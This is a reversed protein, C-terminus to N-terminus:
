RRKVCVTVASAEERPVASVSGDHGEVVYSTTAKRDGRTSSWVPAEPLLGARALSLLEKRSPVRWGRTFYFPRGRCTTMADHWPRQGMIPEAVVLGRHVAVQRREIAIDLQTKDDGASAPEIAPPATVIVPLPIPTPASVVVPPAETPVIPLAGVAPIEAEIAEMPALEPAPPPGDATGLLVGASAIALGVLVLAARRRREAGVVAPAGLLTPDILTVVGSVEQKAAGPDTPARPLGDFMDDSSLRARALEEIVADIRTCARSWGGHRLDADIWRHEPAATEDFLAKLANPNPRDGRRCLVFVGPGRSRQVAEVLRAPAREVGVVLEVEVGKALLDEARSGLDHALDSAGCLVVTLVPEAISSTEPL